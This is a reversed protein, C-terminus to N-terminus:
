YVRDLLKQGQQKKDDSQSLLTIYRLFNMYTEENKPNKSLLELDYQSVEDLCKEYETYTTM